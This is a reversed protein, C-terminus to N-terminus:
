TDKRNTNNAATRLLIDLPRNIQEDHAIADRYGAYYAREAKEKLEAKHILRQTIHAGVMGITVAALIISTIM